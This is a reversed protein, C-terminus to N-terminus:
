KRIVTRSVAAKTCSLVRISGFVACQLIPDVVYVRQQEEFNVLLETLDQYFSTIYRAHTAVCTSIANIGTSIYYILGPANLNVANDINASLSTKLNLDIIKLAAVVELAATNFTPTVISDSQFKDLKSILINYRQYQTAVFNIITSDLAAERSIAIVSNIAERFNSFIRDVINVVNLCHAENSADIQAAGSNM